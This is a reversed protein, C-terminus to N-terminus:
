ENRLCETPNIRATKLTQFGVTIWSIILAALASGAFFWWKLEITYAFDELWKSAIFYSVPIALVISILVMKTFEKSLLYVIGMVGSGLAKRIGIEKTRREATYSALGFLGLCSILIALGAFYRSLTSVREESAYLAQYDQDLFQPKFIYGPNFSTYLEDLQKLADLERGKELKAMIFHTQEPRYLFITPEVEQHLSTINFDKVVGIIKKEGTYHTITKGIPDKLGMAIIATENFIAASADAGYEASFSRGQVVEIGMMEIMGFGSRIEWFQVQDKETKGEWSVGGTSNDGGIMFGSLSADIVGPITGLEGLFADSNELLKGEREFYVLNDRDFGLNKTKVFSMQQYVVVVSVILIISLTFQSIVLMRRGWLEGSKKTLKGKLVEISKLGSLYLAPYVGSLAGILLVLVVGALWLSGDGFVSLQKQTILNFRPLLLWVLLIASVTSLLSLLASETFFQYILSRRSAGMTKKVGIERTRHSAKATSLNIFNISAILLIFIAIVTFLQVYEIRGGDQVGGTYNSYLYRDSFKALFLDVQGDEQKEKLIDDIKTQAIQQDAAPTLVVAIRGYYNFWNKYNILDNHYYDWAMVFDFPESTHNPLDALVGTVEVTKTTEWFHWELQKGIVDTSKFIRKALAQTILIGSKSDLANEPSGEVLPFSFVKLFDKSAFKGQAKHYIEGASLSFEHADTMAVASEVEPVTVQIEELLLGPVGKWSRIGSADTHNSMVQFLRDDQSHYRDTKWEDVVWLYILLVCAIGASLGILNILFQSKHKKFNRLTLTFNHRFMTMKNSNKSRAKRIAFPRLYNAAQYWYNCRAKFVSKKEVVMYFREELDGLVEETLEERLLWTLLRVALRPPTNLGKRM